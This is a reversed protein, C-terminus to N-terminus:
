SAGRSSRCRITVSKSVAQEAQSEWEIALCLNPSFISRECGHLVAIINASQEIAFECQEREEIPILVMIADDVEAAEISCNSWTMWM